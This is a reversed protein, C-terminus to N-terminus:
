RKQPLSHSELGKDRCHRLIHNVPDRCLFLRIYHNYSDMGSSSISVSTLQLTLSKIQEPVEFSHIEDNTCMIVSRDDMLIVADAEDIGSAMATVKSVTCNCHLDLISLDNRLGQICFKKRNVLLIDVHLHLLSELRVKFLDLCESELFDTFELSIQPCTVSITAHRIVDIQDM